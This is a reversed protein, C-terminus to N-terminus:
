LITHKPFGVAKRKKYTQEDQRYYKQTEILLQDPAKGTWAPHDHVFLQKDVYKYKGLELAVDHQENDCWLSTYDPHYVYGFRDYYAKGMISMTILRENVHGDPYHILQDLDNGFDSIIQQDFGYVLFRMDDSMNILIDWDDPINRNIADIKNVSNGGVFEINQVPEFCKMSEDDDDIKVLIHYDYTVINENISAIADIFKAPRSRTAFNFLIM